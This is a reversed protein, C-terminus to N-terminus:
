IQTGPFHYTRMMALFWFIIRLKPRANPGRARVLCTLTVHVCESSSQVYLSLALDCRLQLRCFSLLWFLHVGGLGKEFQGQCQIDLGPTRSWTVKFIIPCSFLTFNPVEVQNLLWCTCTLSALRLASSWSYSYMIPSWIFKWIGLRYDNTENM